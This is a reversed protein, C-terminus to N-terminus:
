LKVKFALNKHNNFWHLSLIGGMNVKKLASQLEGVQQKFFINKKAFTDLRPLKKYQNIIELVVDIQKVVGVYPHSLARIIGERYTKLEGVPMGKDKGKHALIHKQNFSFYLSKPLKQEITSNIAEILRKLNSANISAQELPRSTNFSWKIHEGEFINWEYRMLDLIKNTTELPVSLAGFAIREMNGQELTFSDKVKLELAKAILLIQEVVEPTYNKLLRKYATMKMEM